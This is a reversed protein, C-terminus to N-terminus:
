ATNDALHHMIDATAHFFSFLCLRPVVKWVESSTRMERLASISPGALIFQSRTTSRGMPCKIAESQNSAGGLKGKCCAHTGLSKTATM